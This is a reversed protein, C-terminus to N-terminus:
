KLNKLINIVVEIAEGIETPNPQPMEEGRRWGNYKELIEIATELTM